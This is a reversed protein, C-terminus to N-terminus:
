TPGSDHGEGAARHSRTARGGVLMLDMRSSMGAKRLINRVHTAATATSIYLAEAIQEDSTRGSVITALVEFERATLGWESIEVEPPLRETLTGLMREADELRRIGSRLRTIAYIGAISGILSLLLQYTTLFFDEWQDPLLSGRSAQIGLRQFSALLFTGAVLVLATAVFGISSDKWRRQLRWAYVLLLGFLGINVFVWIVLVWTM